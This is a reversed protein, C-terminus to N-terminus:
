RVASWVETGTKAIDEIPVSSLTSAVYPVGPRPPPRPSCSRVTPTCWGSTLCVLQLDAVLRRGM